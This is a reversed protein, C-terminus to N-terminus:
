IVYIIDSLNTSSIRERRTVSSVCDWDYFSIVEYLISIPPGSDQVMLLQITHRGYAEMVVATTADEASPLMVDADQWERGDESEFLVNM